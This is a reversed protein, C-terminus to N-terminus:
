LMQTCPRRDQWALVVPAGDLASHMQGAHSFSEWAMALAIYTNGRSFSLLLTIVAAHCNHGCALSRAAALSDGM